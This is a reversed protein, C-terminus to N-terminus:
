RNYVALQVVTTFTCEPGARWDEYYPLGSLSAAAKHCDRRLLQTVKESPRPPWLKGRGCSIKLVTEAVTKRM